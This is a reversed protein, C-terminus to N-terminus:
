NTQIIRNFNMGAFIFLNLCIWIQWLNPLMLLIFFFLNYCNPYLKSLVEYYLYNMVSIMMLSFSDLTQMCENFCLYVLNQLCLSCSCYNWIFSRNKYYYYLIVFSVRYLVQADSFLSSHTNVSCSVWVKM